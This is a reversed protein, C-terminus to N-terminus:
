RITRPSWITTPSTTTSPVYSIPMCSWANRPSSAASAIGSGPPAPTSSNTAVCHSCSSRAGSRRRGRGARRSPAARREAADATREARAFVDAQLHVGAQERQAGPPRHADGVAALLAEEAVDVAMRRRDPHAVVGRGVALDDLDLRPHHEVAARVRRRRRRHQDVRMVWVWPGYLHALASRRRSRPACWCGATRPSARTRHRAPRSRGRPGSPCAPRPTRARGPRSGGAAVRHLGAVAQDGPLHDLVDRRDLSHMRSVAASGSGSSGTPPGVAVRHAQGTTGAAGGVRRVDTAADAPAHRDLVQHVGLAEVVVRRGAAPEGVTDGRQLERRGLDTLAEDRDGTLDGSRHEADVLDHELRDVGLTPEAPEVDADRCVHILPPATSARRGPPARAATRARRRPQVADVGSRSPSRRARRRRRPRARQPDRDGLGGGAHHEVLRTSYWWGGSRPDRRSRGPCSGCPTRTRRGGRPPRRRGALEAQDLDHLDGGGLVDPPREVRQAHMPWISPPM